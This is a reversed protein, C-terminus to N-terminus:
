SGGAKIEDPDRLFKGASGVKHRHAWVADVPCQPHRPEQECKKPYMYALRTFSPSYAEWYCGSCKIRACWHDDKGYPGTNCIIRPVGDTNFMINDAFDALERRTADPGPGQIQRVVIAFPRPSVGGSVSALGSSRETIEVRM